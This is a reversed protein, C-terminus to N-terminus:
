RPGQNRLPEDGTLYHVVIGVKIAVFRELRAGKSRRWGPLMLIEDCGLVDRLNKRMYARWSAKREYENQAAYEQPGQPNDDAPNVVQYGMERYTEAAAFFAPYNLEDIDSMPGSIYIRAM